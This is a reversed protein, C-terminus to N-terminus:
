WLILQIQLLLVVNHIQACLTQNMQNGRDTFYKYQRGNFIIQCILKIIETSEPLDFM